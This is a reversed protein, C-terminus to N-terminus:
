YFLYKESFSNIFNIFFFKFIRLYYFVFYSYYVMLSLYFPLSFPTYRSVMLLKMEGLILMMFEMGMSLLLSLTLLDILTTFFSSFFPRACDYFYGGTLPFLSAVLFLPSFPPLTYLRFVSFEGFILSFFNSFATERWNLFFVQYNIV